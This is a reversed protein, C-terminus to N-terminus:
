VVVKCRYNKVSFIYFGSPLPIRNEGPDVMLKRYLRGDITYIELPQATEILVVIGSGFSWYRLTPTKFEAIPTHTPISSSYIKIDDVYIDGSSINGEFIIKGNESIIPLSVIAPTWDKKNDSLTTLLIRDDTNNRQAYIKLICSNSLKSTSINQYTFSLMGTQSLNLGINTITAEAIVKEVKMSSILYMYHEGNVPKALLGGTPRIASEDGYDSKSCIKWGQPREKLQLNEWHTSFSGTEFGESFVIGSENGPENIGIKLHIEGAENEVIQSITWNLDEGNWGIASPITQNTFSSKKSTGPFPCGASNIEGYSAPSSSPFVYNSSACVPYCMQPNMTNINNTELNELQSHIHYIILGHGPLARDFGTQQRNEFLFFEGPTTSDLRYVQNNSDSVPSLSVEGQQTKADTWGFTYVRIYPNFNPPSVGDENWSGSAMIDWEGTGIFEEGSSDDTDYFDMSGLTHGIEHCPVGIRSIGNGSNGRLEPSCSYSNIKIGQISIDEALTQEHSWIASPSAGSEEGYGSYIIHVNDVYGDNNADYNSFDVENSAAKVAEQFLAEPNNDRGGKLGNSGYYSMNYHATFPGVVDCTLDLQGYSNERYYDRVSGRANDEAYGIRNFLADFDGKDKTFQEDKFNMLIVLAKRQGIVPEKALENRVNQQLLIAKKLENKASPKLNKPTKSLFSSLAGSRKEIPALTWFSPVVQNESDQVAYSLKGEQTYLLTYGDESFAYKFNEDGGLRISVVSGDQLKYKVKTPFAKVAYADNLNIQIIWLIVFLFLKKRFCKREKHYYFECM